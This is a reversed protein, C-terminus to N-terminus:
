KVRAHALTKELSVKKGGMTVSDRNGSDKVTKVKHHM